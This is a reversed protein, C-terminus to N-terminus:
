ANTMALLGCKHYVARIVSERTFAGMQQLVQSSEGAVPIYKVHSAFQRGPQEGGLRVAQRVDPTEEVHPKVASRSQFCLRVPLRVNQADRTIKKESESFHIKAFLEFVVIFLDETTDCKRKAARKSYDSHRFLRPQLCVQVKTIKVFNYM